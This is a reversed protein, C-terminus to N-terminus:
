GKNISISDAPSREQRRKSSVSSITSSATLCLSCSREGARLNCPGQMIPKGFKLKIDYCPIKWGVGMGQMLGWLRLASIRLHRVKSNRLGLTFGLPLGLVFLFAVGFDLGLLLGEGM